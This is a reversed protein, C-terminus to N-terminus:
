NFYLDGAGGVSSTAWPYVAYCVQNFWTGAASANATKRKFPYFFDSSLGAVEHLLSVNKKKNQKKWSVNYATVLVLPTLIHKKQTPIMEM